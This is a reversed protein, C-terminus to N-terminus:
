SLCPKLETFCFPKPATHVSVVWCGPNSRFYFEFFDVQRASNTEAENVATRGVGNDNFISVIECVNGAM